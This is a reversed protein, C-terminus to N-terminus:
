RPENVKELSFATIWPTVNTEAVVGLSAVSALRLWEARALFHLCGPGFAFLTAIDRLHEVLVVRGGPRLCRALEIFFRDRARGNRIEHATFAVVLADCSRDPLSLAKPSCSLASYARRTIMRARSISSSTMLDNDFIDLRGLCRGPMVANLMVEADLGAHVAAWTEVSPPLLPAIFQGRLLPSRDYIHWSVILSLASWAAPLASLVIALNGLKQVFCVLALTLSLLWVAVFSPWNYVFIRWAGSASRM